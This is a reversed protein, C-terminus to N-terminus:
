RVAAIPAGQTGYEAGAGYGQNSAEAASLDGICGQGNHFCCWTKKSDSWGKVFNALGSNCDYSNAPVDATSGCGRQHIKCCWTKKEGSWDSQWSPFDDACNFPDVPGVPGPNPTPDCGIGTTRCCYAQKENSWHFQWDEAHRNCDAEDSPWCLLCWLAGLLLLLGLLPCCIIAAYNRRPRTGFDGGYGVYRMQTDQVWDGQGCGVYM